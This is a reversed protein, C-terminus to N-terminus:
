KVEETFLAKERARRAILGRSEVKTKINNFYKTVYKWRQFQTEALDYKKEILFKRITSSMFNGLGINFVFSCLADYQNQNLELTNLVKEVSELDKLLLQKAKYLTITDGEKVGETHGYGITWKGAECKYAELRLGEEKKIFKIGNESIKM